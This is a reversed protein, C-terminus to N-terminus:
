LSDMHDNEHRDKENHVPKIDEFVWTWEDTLRVKLDTLGKTFTGSVLEVRQADTIKEPILRSTKLHLGNQRSNSNNCITAFRALRYLFSM